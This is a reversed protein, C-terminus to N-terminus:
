GSVHIKATQIIGMCDNHKIWGSFYELHAYSIYDNEMEKCSVNNYTSTKHFITSTVQLFSVSYGPSIPDVPHVLHNFKPPSGLFCSHLVEKYIHLSPNITTTPVALTVKVFPLLFKCGDKFIDTNQILCLERQCHSVGHGM